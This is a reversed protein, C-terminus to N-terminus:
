VSLSGGVFSKLKMCRIKWMREGAAEAYESPPVLTLWSKESTHKDNGNLDRVSAAGVGDRNIKDSAIIEMFQRNTESGAELTIEIWGSEDLSQVRTMDEGDASISDTWVDTAYSVKCFTGKKIGRAEVGKFIIKIQNPVYQHLQMPM